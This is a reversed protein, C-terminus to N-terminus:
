GISRTRGYTGTVIDQQRDAPWPRPSMTPMTNPCATAHVPRVFLANAVIFFENGTHVQDTYTAILKFGLASLYDGIELLSGGTAGPLPYLDNFEFYVFRIRGSQLLSEGGKLVSLEFGEVDIKLVDIDGIGNQECFLDLRTCRIPRKTSQYGYLVTQRANPVLSNALAPDGSCGYEYMPIEGAESGLAENRLVARKSSLANRLTKFTEPHPEFAFIRAGPFAKLAEVTTEGVNAGVDFVTRIAIRWDRALRNIDLFPDVGFRLFARKWLVYDLKELVYRL